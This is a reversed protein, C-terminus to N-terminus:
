DEPAPASHGNMGALGIQKAVIELVHYVIRGLRFGEVVTVAAAILALSGGLQAIEELGTFLGILAVVGCAAATARAMWSAHVRVRTRFLRKQGGHHEVAVKLDARAWLGRHITLDHDNWGQDIAIMYKRPLLFEMVAHLLNEKELGTENWFSLFYQRKLWQVAPPQSVQDFQIRAANSHGQLRYLYRQLSRVLPGLYILVTILARGFLGDFRPDVKARSARAAAAFVSTLLPLSAALQHQGAVISGILLVLGSLNWELTFPLYSLLSSSPEYLTQFLGRGFVGHYIVPRASLLSM